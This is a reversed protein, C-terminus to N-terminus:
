ALISRCKAIKPDGFEARGKPDNEVQYDGTQVRRLTTRVTRCAFVDMTATGATPDTLLYSVILGGSIRVPDAGFFTGLNKSNTMSGSVMNVRVRLVPRDKAFVAEVRVARAIPSSGADNVATVKAHFDDVRKVLAGLEAARVKQGATPKELALLTDRESRALTNLETLEDLGKMLESNSLDPRGIMAGPLIAGKGLGRAVALVLMADDLEPLAVQTVTTETRVLGALTSVVAVLGAVSASELGGRTIRLSKFERQFGTIQGGIAAAEAFNTTDAAGVLVCPRTVTCSSKVIGSIRSGAIGMAGVTLQAVELKGADGSLTTAGTYSPLNLAAIREALTPDASAAGAPMAALPSALLSASALLAVSRRILHKM